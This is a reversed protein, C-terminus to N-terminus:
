SGIQIALGNSLTFTGLFPGNADLVLYQGFVSAGVLGPTAPIPLNTRALGFPSTVLAPGATLPGQVLLRCGFAPVDQAGVGFFSVALTAAPAQSLDVAFSANGLGPLGFAAIQPVLGLTGPCLSDGYVVASAQGSGQLPLVWLEEGAASDISAHCFIRGGAPTLKSLNSAGSGPRSGFLGLRVTGAASGDSRWIQLGDVHDAGVFVVSTSGPLQTLTGDMIGHGTGAMLDVIMMTGAFTGDSTWLEKGHVQDDVVFFLRGTTGVMETIPVNLVTPTIDRVVQTGAVTGDSVFLKGGGGPGPAQALFFLLNGCAVLGQPSSSLGGPFLDAFLLTGAATGDTVCLERGVGPLTAAFFVRNGVVTFEAPSSGGVGPVLDALLTTGALTGDSIWAERGLVGNNASFLCRNGFAAMEQPLAGTTGPALDFQLTGALTGDTAFLERGSGTQATFFLPGATPTLDSIAPTNTGPVLDFAVGTGSPTGNSYCLEFSTTPTSAVFWVDSRWRVPRNPNGLGLNIESTGNATGDSLWPVWGSPPTPAFFLNGRLETMLGLASSEYGVALDLVVGSSSGDSWYLERGLTLGQASYLVLNGLARTNAPPLSGLVPNTGAATGDSTWLRGSTGATMAGFAVGGFAAALNAVSTLGPAVLTTGALTGDTWWLTRGTGGNGTFFVRNGSAPTLEQISASSPGPNLDGLRFTGVASGDSRWPEAGSTGDNADFVVLAGLATLQGPNSGVQGPFIDFVRRTGIATGDTAYLEAGGSNETAVFFLDGATACLQRPSASGPGPVFDVLIQTGAATGDTHYIERGRGDQGVFWLLGNWVALDSPAGPNAPNGGPFLDVVLNTGAMTGDSRWLEPGHVGDNAHFYVRGQFAILHRPDSGLGPRLDIDRVLRTGASTGDTAYLERGYGAVDATFYLVNGVATLEGPSSSAAGPNLDKLRWTGGASGDTRWLEDGYQDTAVFFGIGGAVVLPQPNSSRGLVNPSLDRVLSQALATDALSLVGLMLAIALASPAVAPSNMTLNATRTERHM